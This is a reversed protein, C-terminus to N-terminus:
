KKNSRKKKTKRAKKAKKVKKARKTKKGKKGKKKGGFHIKDEEQTNGESDSGSNDTINSPLSEVSMKTAELALLDDYSQPSYNKLYPPLPPLGSDPNYKNLRPNRPPSDSKRPLFMVGSGPSGETDTKAASGPTSDSTNRPPTTFPGGPTRPTSGPTMFDIDTQQSDYEVPQKLSFTSNPKSVGTGYEKAIKKAKEARKKAKYELLKRYQKIEESVEEKFEYVTPQFIPKINHQKQAKEHIESSIGLNSMGGSTISDISYIIKIGNFNSSLLDGIVQYINTDETVIRKEHGHTYKGQSNIYIMALSITTYGQDFYNIFLVCPFTGLSSGGIFYIKNGAIKSKRKGKSNIKFFDIDYEIEIDKVGQLFHEIDEMNIDIASFTSIDQQRENYEDLGNKDFTMMVFLQEIDNNEVDTFICSVRELFINQNNQDLVNKDILSLLYVLLMNSNVTIEYQQSNLANVFNNIFVQFNTENNENVQNNDVFNKMHDEYATFYRLNHNDNYDIANANYLAYDTLINPVGLISGTNVAEARCTYLRIHTQEGPIILPRGGDDIQLGQHYFQAIFNIVRDWGFWENDIFTDEIKQNGRTINHLTYKHQEDTPIQEVKLLEAAHEFSVIHEMKLLEAKNNQGGRAKIYFLGMYPGLHSNQSDEFRFQLRLPNVTVLNRGHITTKTNIEINGLINFINKTLTLKDRLDNGYATVGYDSIIGLSNFLPQHFPYYHRNGSINYEEGHAIFLFTHHIEPDPESVPGPLSEDLYTSVNDNTNSVPLPYLERLYQIRVLIQEAGLSQKIENLVSIIQSQEESPFESQMNEISIEDNKSDIYSIINVYEQEYNDLNNNVEEDAGEKVNGENSYFNYFYNFENKLNTAAQGIDIEEINMDKDAM